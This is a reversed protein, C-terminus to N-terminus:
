AGDSQLFMALALIRLLRGHKRAHGIEQNTVGVPDAVATL